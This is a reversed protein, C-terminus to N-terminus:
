DKEICRSNKTLGEINSRINTKEKVYMGDESLIEGVKDKLHDIDSDNNIILTAIKKFGEVGMENESKLTLKFKEFDIRTDGERNIFRQYSAELTSEIYWISTPKDPFIQNKLKSELYISEEPNRYGCIVIDKKDLHSTYQNIIYDSLYDQDYYPNNHTERLKERFVKTSKITPDTKDRVSRWFPGVDLIWFGKDKLIDATTSKGSARHGSLFIM